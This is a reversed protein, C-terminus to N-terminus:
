IGAGLNMSAREKEKRLEEEQKWYADSDKYYKRILPLFREEEATMHIGALFKKCSTCEMGCGAPRFECDAYMRDEEPDPPLNFNRRWDKAESVHWCHKEIFEQPFVPADM